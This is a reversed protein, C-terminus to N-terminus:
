PLKGASVTPAMIYKLCMVKLCSKFLLNFHLRNSLVKFDSNLHQMNLPIDIHEKCM